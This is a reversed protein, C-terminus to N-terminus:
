KEKGSRSAKGSKLAKGADSEKEKGSGKEKESQLTVVDGLEAKKGKAFVVDREYMEVESGVTGSRTCDKFDKFCHGHKNVYVVNVGENNEFFAKAKDFYKSM